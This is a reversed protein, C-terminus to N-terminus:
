GFIRKQTAYDSQHDGIRVLLIAAPMPREAASPAPTPRSNHARPGTHAFALLSRDVVISVRCSSQSLFVRETSVSRLGSRTGKCFSALLWTRRTDVSRLGGSSNVQGGTGDRTRGPWDFSTSDTRGGGAGVFVRGPDLRPSPGSEDFAGRSEAEGPCFQARRARKPEASNEGGRRVSCARFLGLWRRRESRSLRRDFLHQASFQRAVRRALVCLRLM